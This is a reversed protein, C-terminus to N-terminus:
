AGTSCRASPVSFVDLVANSERQLEISDRLELLWRHFDTLEAGGIALTHTGHLLGWGAIWVALV